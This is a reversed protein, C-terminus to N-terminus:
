GALFVSKSGSRAWAKAALEEGREVVTGQTEHYGDAMTGAQEVRQAARRGRGAGLDGGGGPQVLTVHALPEAGHHRRADDLEVGGGPAIAKRGLM